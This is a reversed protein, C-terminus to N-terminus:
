RIVVLALLGAAVLVAAVWGRGVYVLVGDPEPRIQLAWRGEAADNSM